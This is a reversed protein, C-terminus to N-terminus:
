ANYGFYFKPLINYTPLLQKSTERSVISKVKKRKSINLKIEGMVLAASIYVVEYDNASSLISFLDGMLPALWNKSRTILIEPSITNVIKSSCQTNVQSYRLLLETVISRLPMPKTQSAKM